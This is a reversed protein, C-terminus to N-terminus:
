DRLVFPCRASSCSRGNELRPADRKRSEIGERKQNTRGVKITSDNRRHCTLYSNGWKLSRWTVSLDDSDPDRRRRQVCRQLRIGVHAKVHFSVEVISWKRNWSVFHGTFCFRDLLLLLLFLLLSSSHFFDFICQKCDNLKYNM